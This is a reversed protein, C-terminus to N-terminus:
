VTFISSVANGQVGSTFQVYIARTKLTEQVNLKRETNLLYFSVKLVLSFM